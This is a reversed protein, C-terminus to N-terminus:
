KPSLPIKIWIQYRQMIKEDVGEEWVWIRVEELQRRYDQDAAEFIKEVFTFM